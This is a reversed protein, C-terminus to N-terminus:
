MCCPLPQIINWLFAALLFTVHVDDNDRPNSWFDVTAGPLTINKVFDYIDLNNVEVSGGEFISVYLKGLQPVAYLASVAGTTNITRVTRDTTTNIVSVSPEGYSAVYLMDGAISM